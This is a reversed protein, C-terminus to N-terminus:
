EHESTEIQDLQQRSAQFIQRIIAKGVESDSGSDPTLARNMIDAIGEILDDLPPIDEDPVIGDMGILGFALMNMIHTVVRPDLEQRMAGAEQMM